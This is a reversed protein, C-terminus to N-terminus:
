YHKAWPSNNQGKRLNRLIQHVLSNPIKEFTNSYRQQHNKVGQKHCVDSVNVGGLQVTPNPLEKPIPNPDPKPLSSKPRPSSM